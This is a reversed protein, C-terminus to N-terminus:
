EDKYIQAIAAKAILNALQQSSMEGSSGNSAVDPCGTYRIGVIGQDELSEIVGALEEHSPLLSRLEDFSVVGDGDKDFASLAPQDVCPIRKEPTAM